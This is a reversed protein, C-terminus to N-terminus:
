RSGAPSPDRGARRPAVTVVTGIPLGAVHDAYDAAGVRLCGNSGTGGDGVGHHVHIAVVAPDGAFRDLVASNASLASVAPPISSDAEWRSVVYSRGVPTPTAAAGHRTPFSVTGDPGHVTITHSALDVQVRHTAPRVEQVDDDHVWGSAGNVRRGSSPVALRGPLLVRSWSGRRQVRPVVTEDSLSRDPLVGIAAGDPADHVVAGAAVVDVLDDVRGTDVDPVADPTVAWVDITPLGARDDREVTAVFAADAVQLPADITASSPGPVTAVVVLALLAAVM